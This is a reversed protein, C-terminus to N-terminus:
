KRNGKFSGYDALPRLPAVAFGNIARLEAAIYRSYIKQGARNLHVDDNMYLGQKERDFYSFSGIIKTPGLYENVMDVFQRDIDACDKRYSDLMEDMKPTLLLVFEKGDRTVESKLRKLYEFYYPSLPFTGIPNFWGRVLDQGNFNKPRGDLAQAGYDAPISAATVAPKKYLLYNKLSHGISNQLFGYGLVKLRIKDDFTSGSNWLVNLRQWFSWQSVSFDDYRYYSEAFVWPDLGYLVTQIGHRVKPSLQQWIYYSQVPHRAHFAVNVVEGPKFEGHELFVAPSLALLATSSGMIMVRPQNPLADLWAYDLFEDYRYYQAVLARSGCTLLELALVLTGLFLLSKLFFRKVM